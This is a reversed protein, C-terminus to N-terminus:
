LKRIRADASDCLRADNQVEHVAHVLSPHMPDHCKGNFRHWSHSRPMARMTTADEWADHSEDRERSTENREWDAPTATIDEHSLCCCLFPHVTPSTQLATADIVSNRKLVASEKDLM